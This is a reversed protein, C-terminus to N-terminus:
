SLGKMANTIEKEAAPIRNLIARFTTKGESLSRIGGATAAFTSPLTESFSFAFDYVPSFLILELMNASGNDRLVHNMNYSVFAENIVGFSAANLASMVVSAKRAEVTNKQVAFLLADSNVLSVYGSQAYDYKPFPLIGWNLSSNAMWSLIFLRDPMFLAGGESFRALGSATDTHSNMDSFLRTVVNARGADEDSLVVAPEFGAVSSVYTGGASFFVASALMDASYQYSYSSVPQAAGANITGVSESLTFFADWTWTGDYVLRCPDGLGNATFLDRNFYVGNLTSEELSASGAAAYTKYGVTGAAVSSANYYPRTLDLLPMSRLNILLGESAFAGLTKQPLLLLDSFYEDSEISNKVSTLYTNEDVEQTTIVVNLANEVDQNRGLKTLSYSDEDLPILSTPRPTAIFFSAAKFDYGGAAVQALYGDALGRYDELVRPPIEIDPPASTDRPPTTERQPRTDEAVTFEVLGCGSFLLLLGLLLAQLRLLKRM